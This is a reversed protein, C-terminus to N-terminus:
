PSTVMRCMKGSDSNVTTPLRRLRHVDCTVPEDIFHCKYRQKFYDVIERRADSEMELVKKDNTTVVVHFGKAGSFILDSNLDFDEKLAYRIMIAEGKVRSLGDPKGDLDFFLDAGVWGKDAMEKAAPNQYYATSIFCDLPNTEKIFKWVEKESSFSKHRIMIKDSNPSIERIHVSSFLFGFERKEIQSTMFLVM